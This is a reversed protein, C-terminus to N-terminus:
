GLDKILKLFEQYNRIYDDEDYFDSAVVLLVCDPSFDYMEHWVLPPLLLGKSRDELPVVVKDAGADLLVQCSGQLCVMVQRLTRHAHLGRRVGPRTDFIYYIRRIPFPVDAEAEIAVLSGREDGCLKFDYFIPEMLTEGAPVM